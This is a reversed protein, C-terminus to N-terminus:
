QGQIKENLNSMRHSFEIELNNFESLEKTFVLIEKLYEPITDLLNYWKEDIDISLKKVGLNRSFMFWDLIEKKNDNIGNLLVYNIVVQTSSTNEFELYRKINAVAIDYKNIGKVREYIYPCGADLSVVLKTINKMMAEAISHCHRMASTNIVVDKMGINILYYMLKDFEPHLTADGCGFIIQTHKTILGNDVLQEIIPMIDFHKVTNLDDTKKEVCYSCSLFCCKWHSLVVYDLSSVLSKLKDIDLWLGNFNFELIESSIVKVKEDFTFELGVKQKQDKKSFQNKFSYLFSKLM